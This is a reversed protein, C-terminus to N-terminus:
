VMMDDNAKPRLALAGLALAVAGIGINWWKNAKKCNKLVDETIKKSADEKAAKKKGIADLYENKKFNPDKKTIAEELKQIDTQADTRVKAYAEQEKAKAIVDEQKAAWDKFEQLERAQEPTVNSIAVEKGEITFKLEKNAPDERFTKTLKEASNRQDEMITNLLTKANEGEGIKTEGSLLKELVENESKDLSELKEVYNKLEESGKLKDGAIKDAEEELDKIAKAQEQITKWSAAADGSKEAQSKVFKDNKTADAVAEDWSKYAQTPIGINAYKALAWGGAGGVVAGGLLYPVASPRSSQVMMEDSM